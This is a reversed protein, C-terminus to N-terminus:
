YPNISRWRSVTTRFVTLVTLLSLVLAVLLPLTTAAAGIKFLNRRNPNELTLDDTQSPTDKQKEM